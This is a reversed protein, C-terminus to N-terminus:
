IIQCIKKFKKRFVVFKKFDSRILWNELQNSKLDYQVPEVISGISYM